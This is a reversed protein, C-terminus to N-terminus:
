LSLFCPKLAIVGTISELLCLLSCVEAATTQGMDLLASIISKFATLSAEAIAASASPSHVAFSCLTCMASVLSRTEPAIPLIVSSASLLKSCAALTPPLPLSCAAGAVFACFSLFARSFAAVDRHMGSSCWRCLLMLLVSTSANRNGQSLQTSSLVNALSWAAAGLFERLSLSAGVASPDWVEANSALAAFSRAAAIHVPEERGLCVASFMLFMVAQRENIAEPTSSAALLLLQPAFELAVCACKMVPTDASAEPQSKLPHLLRLLLRLM